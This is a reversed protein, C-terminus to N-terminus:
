SRTQGPSLAQPKSRDPKSRMLVSISVGDFGIEVAAMEIRGASLPSRVM